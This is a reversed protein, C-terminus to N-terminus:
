MTQLEFIEVACQGENGSLIPLGHTLERAAVLDDAELITYGLLDGLVGDSGNDRISTSAGFPAGIDVLAPGVKDIWSAFLSSREAAQKPTPETMATAPGRYLYMFRAM